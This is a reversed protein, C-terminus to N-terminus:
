DNMNFINHERVVTELESVTCVDDLVDKYEGYFKSDEILEHLSILGKFYDQVTDPAIQFEWVGAFLVKYTIFFDIMEDIDAQKIHKDYTGPTYKWEGHLELNGADTEDFTNPDFVPKVRIGHSSQRGSFFFSFPQKSPNKIHNGRVNSMCMIDHLNKPSVTYTRKMALEGRSM